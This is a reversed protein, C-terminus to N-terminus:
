QWTSVTQVHHDILDWVPINLYHALKEADHRIAKFSGHDTVNFREGNNLVLNMEYSYYSNESGAVYESILQIAHVENLPFNKGQSTYIGERKNFLVNKQYLWWLLGAGFVSFLLPLFPVIAPPINGSTVVSPDNFFNTLMVSFVIGISIFLFCFLNAAPTVKMQLITRPDDIALTGRSSLLRHTCFNSGGSELPSWRTILAVRDDLSNLDFFERRDKFLGRLQQLM